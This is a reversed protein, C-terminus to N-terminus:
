PTLSRYVAEVLSLARQDTHAPTQRNSVYAFALGAAPDAFAITGGSGPHGFGDPNPTVGFFATQPKMFGLGYATHEGLIRDTGSVATATVAAVVAPSCLRVGDLTGGAALAAYVRSLARANTVGLGSPVELRLVEPDHDAGPRALDPLALMARLLPSATDSWIQRSPQPDPVLVAARAAAHAPTGIYAEVGLPGAVEEAFFRGVSRGDMRRVLEAAYFGWTIAHYGHATGPEWVPKQRALDAALGGPEVLRALRVPEDLYPLGAQHSLLQAVTVDQKGNEAFEPWYRAVPLGPELRGRDILMALCTAVLGKTASWVVQLTDEEWRRGSGPDAYGGWLDVVPKGHVYVCVSAGIEGRSSFNRTFAAEVAGFGPETHGDVLTGDRHIRSVKPDMATDMATNLLATKV